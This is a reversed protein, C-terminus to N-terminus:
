RRSGKRGRAASVVSSSPVGMLRSSASLKMSSSVSPFREGAWIAPKRTAMFAAPIVGSSIAPHAVTNCRLRTAMDASTGRRSVQPVPPSPRPVKLMEESAAITAEAAPAATAFCPLM